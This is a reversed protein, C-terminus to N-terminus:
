YELDFPWSNIGGIEVINTYGMNALKQSAAKSRNGSRCYVFILQDKDTLIDLVADNINENPYNIAGKIHGSNYEDVTRVDLIIYDSETEMMEVAKDTSISVYTARNENCGTLLALLIFLVLMKKM